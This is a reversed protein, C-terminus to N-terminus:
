IRQNYSSNNSFYVSVKTFIVLSYKSIPKFYYDWSNKSKNILNKENYVTPFNEM